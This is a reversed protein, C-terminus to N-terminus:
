EVPASAVTPGGTPAFTASVPVFTASVPAPTPDVGRLETRPQPPPAAAPPAAAPQASSGRVVAEFAEGLERGSQFRQELGRAKAIGIDLVKGTEEDGHRALFTNGPKLDRHVLGIEHARRLARVIQEVVIKAAPLALRGERHLKAELDEGELLEMVM